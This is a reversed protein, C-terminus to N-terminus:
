IEEFLKHFIRLKFGLHRCRQSQCSFASLEFFLQRLNNSLVCFNRETIENADVTADTTARGAQLSSSFFFVLFINKKEKFGLLQFITKSGCIM